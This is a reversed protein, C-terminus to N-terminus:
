YGAWHPRAFLASGPTLQRQWDLQGNLANFTLLAGDFTGVQVQFGKEFHPIALLDTCSMRATFGTRILDM